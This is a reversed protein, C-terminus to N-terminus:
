TIDSSTKKAERQFEVQKKTISWRIRDCQLPLTKLILYQVSVDRRPMKYTIAICPMLGSRNIGCAIHFWDLFNTNVTDYYKQTSAPFAAPPPNFQREHYWPSSKGWFSKQSREFLPTVGRLLHGPNRRRLWKYLSRTDDELLNLLFQRSLLKTLSGRWFGFLYFM